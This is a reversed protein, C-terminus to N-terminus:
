NPHLGSCSSSSWVPFIPPRMIYPALVALMNLAGFRERLRPRRCSVKTKVQLGDLALVYLQFVNRLFMLVPTFTTKARNGVMSFLFSTAAATPTTFTEYEDIFLTLCYTPDIQIGYSICLLAFM